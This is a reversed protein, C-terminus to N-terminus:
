KEIGFYDRLVDDLKKGEVVKEHHISGQKTVFKNGTLDLYGDSTIRSVHLESYASDGTSRLLNPGYFDSLHCNLRAAQLLPM